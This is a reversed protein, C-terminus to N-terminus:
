GETSAPPRKDAGSGGASGRRTTRTTSPPREDSDDGEGAAQSGAVSASGSRRREVTLEDELREVVELVHELKNETRVLQKHLSTVDARGALRANRIALDLVDNGIRHLAVMNGVAQALMTGFAKSTTVEELGPAATSLFEDFQGRFSQAGTRGPQDAM